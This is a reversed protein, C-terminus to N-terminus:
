EVHKFPQKKFLRPQNPISSLGYMGVRELRLRSRGRQNFVSVRRANSTGIERGREADRKSTYRRKRAKARRFSGGIVSRSETRRKSFVAANREAVQSAREQSGADGM